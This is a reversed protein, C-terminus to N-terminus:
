QPEPFVTPDTTSTISGLSLLIQTKPIAAKQLIGAMSAPIRDTEESPM